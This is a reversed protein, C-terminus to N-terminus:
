LVDMRISKVYPSGYPQSGIQRWERKYRCSQSLRAIRSQTTTSCCVDRCRSSWVVSTEDCVRGTVVAFM